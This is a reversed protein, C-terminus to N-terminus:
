DIEIVDLDDPVFVNGSFYAKAEKIYNEKRLTLNTDETHWLVINKIKLLQAKESVDKVTGHGKAHAKFKQEDKDLCFAEHLLWNFNKVREFLEPKLPEDGSFCVENNILFGFQQEKTAKTDFFEFHLGILSTKQGDSVTNFFIREGILKRAPPFLMDILKKLTEVSENGGYVNLDGTYNGDFLIKATIERVVWILGLIHDTHIHSIFINHIDSLNINSKKLQSIIQNGGGGDVLVFKGDNEIAFCTNYCEVAGGNGTGLVHLKM